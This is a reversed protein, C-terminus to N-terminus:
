KQRRLEAQIAEALVDYPQEAYRENGIFFTPVNYVGAAYSDDDYKVIRDYFQKEEIAQRLEDPDGLGEALNLLVDISSINEGREWLARYVRDMFPEPDGISKFYETAELANHTRLKPPITVTPVPVNSAYWALRMRSPTKPRNSAVQPIPEPDNWPLEEPMLEHAVWDFSVDFAQKLRRTQNWGIWCWGCNFDHAVKIVM